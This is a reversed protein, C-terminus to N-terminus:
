ELQKTWKEETQVPTAFFEDVGNVFPHSIGNRFLIEIVRDRLSVNRQQRLITLWVSIWNRMWSLPATGMIKSEKVRPLGGRFM